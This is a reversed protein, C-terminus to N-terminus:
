EGNGMAAILERIGEPSFPGREEEMLNQPNEGANLATVLIAMRMSVTSLVKAIAENPEMGEDLSLPRTKFRIRGYGTDDTEVQAGSVILERNMRHLLKKAYKVKDPSVKLHTDADLIFSSSEECVMLQCTTYGAGFKAASLFFSGEGQDLVDFHGEDLNNRVQDTASTPLQQEDPTPKRDQQFLGSIDLHGNM